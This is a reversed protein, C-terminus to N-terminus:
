LTVPTSPSPEAGAVGAPAALSRSALSSRAMRRASRSRARLDALPPRRPGSHHGSKPFRVHRSEARNFNRPAATQRQKGIAGPGPAKLATRCRSASFPCFRVPHELIGESGDKLIAKAVTLM